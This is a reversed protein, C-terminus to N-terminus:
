ESIKEVLLNGLGYSKRKGVSNFYLENVKEADSIEVIANIMILNKIFVKSKQDDNLFGLDSVFLREISVRDNFNIGKIFDLGTSKTLYYAFKDKNKINGKFDVPCLEFVKGDPQKEKTSYSIIGSVRVFDGVKLDETKVSETNFKKIKILEGSKSNFEFYNSDNEVKNREIIIFINRGDNWVKFKEQLNCIKEEKFRVSTYLSHLTDNDIKMNAIFMIKVFDNNM